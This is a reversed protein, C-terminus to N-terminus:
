FNIDIELVCKESRLSGLLCKGVKKLIFEIIMLRAYFFM